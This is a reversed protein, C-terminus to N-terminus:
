NKKLPAPVEPPGKRPPLKRAPAPLTGVAGQTRSAALPSPRDPLLPETLPTKGSLDAPAEPRALMENIGYYGIILFLILALGFVLGEFIPHRGREGRRRGM